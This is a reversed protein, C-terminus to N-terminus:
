LYREKTNQIANRTTLSNKLYKDSIQGFLGKFAALKLFNKKM